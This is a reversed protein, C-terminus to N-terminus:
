AALLIALDDDNVTGVGDVTPPALTVSGSAAIPAPTVVRPPTYRPAVGLRHGSQVSAVVSENFGLGVMAPAAITFDATGTFTEAGVAELAPGGFAIAGIGNFAEEGMAAVAPAAITLSATGTFSEAGTGTVGPAALTVGGSGTIDGAAASGLFLLVSM